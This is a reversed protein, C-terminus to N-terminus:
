DGGIQLAKWRQEVHPALFARIDANTLLRWANSRASPDAVGPYASKYAATANFGNRLYELCFARQAAKLGHSKERRGQNARRPIQRQGSSARKRTKTMADEKKSAPANWDAVLLGGPYDRM